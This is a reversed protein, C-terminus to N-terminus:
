AACRQLANHLDADLPAAGLVAGFAYDPKNRFEAALGSDSRRRGCKTMGGLCVGSLGFGFPGLMANSSGLTGIAKLQRTFTVAPKSRMEIKGHAAARWFTAKMICGREAENHISM